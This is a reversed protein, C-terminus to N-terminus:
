YKGNSIGIVLFVLLQFYVMALFEDEEKIMHLQMELQLNRQHRAEWSEKAEASRWDYRDWPERKQLQRPVSM